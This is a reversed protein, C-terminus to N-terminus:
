ESPEGSAPAPEPRGRQRGSGGSTDLKAARDVADTIVKSGGHAAYGPHILNVRIGRPGYELAAVRSLGRLARKSATYAVAHYATLAAVSGVNVISGGSRFSVSGPLGALSGALERGEEELADTAVPDAGERALAAAEAAEQGRAAGTVIVTKGALEDM